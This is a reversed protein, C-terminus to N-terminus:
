ETILEYPTCIMPMEYGTRTIIKRLQNNITANAIHKCNWTLLYDMNHVTALAIHLADEAAKQPIIGSLLIAKTLDKVREDLDLLPIDELKNLRLNAATIDGSSSENIVSESIFVNFKDRESDWWFRTIEQHAAIILDRSPKSTLYSIVSTEIYVKSKEM